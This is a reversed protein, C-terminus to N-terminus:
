RKGFDVCWFLTGNGSRTLGIGICNYSRNLINQRHGHSNMWDRMVEDVSGQGMAINEGMTSWGGMLHRLSQHVMNNRKAMSDAWRQAYVMLQQDEKFLPLGYKARIANHADILPHDEEQPIKEPPIIEQPPIIEPQPIKEIPIIEVQPVSHNQKTIHSVILLIQFGVLIALINIFAKM